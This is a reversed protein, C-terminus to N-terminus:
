YGVCIYSVVDGGGLSTANPGNGDLTLTTTTTRTGVPGPHGNGGTEDMAVCAPANELETSFTVTCVGETSSGLTVKGAQDTGVVTAGGGCDPGLTQLSASSSGASLLCCAAVVLGAAVAASKVTVKRMKM